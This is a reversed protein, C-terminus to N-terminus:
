DTSCGSANPSADHVIMADIVVVDQKDAVEECSDEAV